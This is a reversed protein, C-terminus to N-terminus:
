RACNEVDLATSRRAPWYRTQENAKGFRTSIQLAARLMTAYEASDLTVVVLHSDINALLEVLEVNSHEAVQRATQERCKILLKLRALADRRMEAIKERNLGLTEITAKGRQNGNIARLYEENFELFM